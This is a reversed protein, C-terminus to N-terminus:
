RLGATMSRRAPSRRPLPHRLSRSNSTELATPDDLDVATVLVVPLVVAVVEEHAAPPGEHGISVQLPEGTVVRPPERHSNLKVREGLHVNSVLSAPNGPSGLSGLSVRLAIRMPSVM